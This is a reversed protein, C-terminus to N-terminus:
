SSQEYPSVRISIAPFIWIGSPVAMCAVNTRELEAIIEMARIKPAGSLTGAPFCSYLADVASMGKRLKGRVNSVIHMVHSYKEIAMFQTVEVSGYESIRGIDNRGLDVLMLHEACEKEDALLEKELRADEAATAGRRRTGAIPRTEVIGNDLRVLLEPSSGIICMRDMKLFYLYPSPNVIRLMRYVNFPEGTYEMKMQQSLVVQFIDGEVIYNKGKEVNTLFKDRSMAINYNALRAPLGELDYPVSKQLISRLKRIEIVAKNYEELLQVDTAGAPIYANAVASVNRKVADFVLLTDFFMLTADNLGLPNLKASPIDELLQITDYGFYGVAGGTFRPLGEVPVTKCHAFIKKLAELPNMSADVLTPLVQVDPHRPKITFSKGRIEFVMFPNYGLFTYRGIKEGGEVSELLFSYPSEDKLKLYVSVPTETDAIM